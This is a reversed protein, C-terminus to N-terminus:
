QARERALEARALDRERTAESVAAEARREVDLQAELTARAASSEAEATATRALDLILGALPREPDPSALAGELALLRVDLQNRLTDLERRAEAALHDRSKSM